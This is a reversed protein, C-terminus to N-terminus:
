KMFCVDFFVFSQRQERRGYKWWLSFWPLLSIPESCFRWIVEYCVNKSSSVNNAATLLLLSCDNSHHILCVMTCKALWCLLVTTDSRSRTLFPYGQTVERRRPSTCAIWHIKSLPFILVPYSVGMLQFSRSFYIHCCDLMKLSPVATQQAWKCRWFIETVAAVTWTSRPTWSGALM